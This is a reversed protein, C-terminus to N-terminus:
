TEGGTAGSLDLDRTFLGPAAPVTFVDACGHDIVVVAIGTEVKLLKRWADKDIDRLVQEIGERSAIGRAFPIQGQARLEKWMEESSPMLINTVLAGNPDDVNIVVIVWEDPRKGLTAMRRTFHAVREAHADFSGKCYGRNLARIISLADPDDLVTKGDVVRALARPMDSLDQLQIGLLEVNKEVEVLWSMREAPNFAVGNLPHATDFGFWWGTSNLADSFGLGGMVEISNLMPHDYSREYAPHEPGVGVYGCLAVGTDRIIGPMGSATIWAKVLKVEGM